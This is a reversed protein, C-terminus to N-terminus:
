IQAHASLIRQSDRGLAQVDPQAHVPECQRGATNTMSLSARVRLQTRICTSCTSCTGCTGCTSCTSCASRTCPYREEVATHSRVAQRRAELQRRWRRRQSKAPMTACAFRTRAAIQRKWQVPEVKGILQTRAHSAHVPWMPGTPQTQAPAARVPRTRGGLKSTHAVYVCTVRQSDATNTCVSRTTGAPCVCAVGQRDTTSTCASYVGTRVQVSTQASNM